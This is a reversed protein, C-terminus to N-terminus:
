HFVSDLVKNCGHTTRVVTAPALGRVVQKFCASGPAGGVQLSLSLRRLGGASGSRPLAALNTYRWVVTSGSVRLPAPTTGTIVRWGKPLTMRVEVVNLRVHARNRFAFGYTVAQGISYSKKPSWGSVDVRLAPLPKQSATGATSVGAVTSAALACAAVIILVPKM